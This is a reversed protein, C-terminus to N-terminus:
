RGGYQYIANPKPAPKGTSASVVAVSSATALLVGAIIAFLIRM